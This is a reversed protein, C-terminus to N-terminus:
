ISTYAVFPNIIEPHWAIQANDGSAAIRVIRNAFACLVVVDLTSRRGRLILMSVDLSSRKGRFMYTMKQFCHM